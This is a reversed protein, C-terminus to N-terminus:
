IGAQGENPTLAVARVAAGEIMRGRWGGHIDRRLTVATRPGGEKPVFTLRLERGNRRADAVVGAAGAAPIRPNRWAAELRGAGGPPESMQFVYIPRGAADRLTWGGDLPGQLSQAAEASARIRSGVDTPAAPPNPAAAALRLGILAAAAM